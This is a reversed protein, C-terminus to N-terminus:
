AYRKYRLSPDKKENAKKDMVSQKKATSNHDATLMENRISDGTKNRKAGM